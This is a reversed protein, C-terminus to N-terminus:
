AQEAARIRAIYYLSERAMHDALLPRAVGMVLCGALADRLERLFDAFQEMEAASRANLRRLAGAMRPAYRLMAYVELARRHLGAFREGFDRARERTERETPDIQAELMTAHGWADELWLLHHHLAAAEGGGEDPGHAEIPPLGGTEALLGLVRMAEEAERIMHQIFTPALGTTLRCDLQAQLIQYKLDRLDTAVALGRRALELAEGARAGGGGLGRAEVQLRDISTRMQEVRRALAVADPSLADHIFRAHDSLIELWFQGEAAVLSSIRSVAM